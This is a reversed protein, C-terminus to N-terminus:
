VECRVITGNTAIRYTTENIVLVGVMPVNYNHTALNFSWGMVNGAPDQAILEQAGQLDLGQATIFLLLCVVMVKTTIRRLKTFIYRDPTQYTVWVSRAGSSVLSTIEAVGNEWTHVKEGIVVTGYDKVSSM